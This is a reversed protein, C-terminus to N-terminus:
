RMRSRFFAKTAADQFFIYCGKLGRTLLVRYTNKVLRLFDDGHAKLVAGDRSESRDGTWAAAAPDYRLDRGFIVGCYDFEFGQATYVCGVQNVGAPDSAWYDSKPIGRALKGADGKANWPMSWNDLTVDPVLQGTSTPQSWKWCFGATLRATFNANQRDRILTELEQVSDVIRVDFADESLWIANATDRIQLTNDIWSIFADSGNCRFQAELEFEHLAVGQDVAAERILASSGTEDPRVVQLDDIFFVSVKAARILEEVQRMGSRRAAPTYRDNSTPRLRHAEDLILADVTDPAATMYSNFFKFQVGARSGVIKKMNGTFAKSGTAHHANYENASLAGVLNLAIVSKGTGPGGRVLIVSKTGDRVNKTVQGLVANFVVLQEDLLVFVKQGKIMAATHELLKKSAQYKGEMVTTLVSMGDAGDLRHLLYEALAATRDGAFLPYMNLLDAHRPHYLEGAPDYRLNHLYACSAIAVNGPAFASNCDELYQQYQGVQRSPHLVDRQRGGVFVPVCEDIASPAVGEWQKLEVVVANPRRNRDRGTVMCDLRKSSLPMQYELVVGHDDLSADRMVGSMARLSDKWSNVESDAPHCRFHAFFAATMTDAIRHNTTDQIFRSSSNAYLQVIGGEAM